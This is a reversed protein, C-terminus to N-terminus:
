RSLTELCFPDLTLTPLSRDPTPVGSAVTEITTFPSVTTM